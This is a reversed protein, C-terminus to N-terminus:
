TLGIEMELGSGTETGEEVEGTAVDGREQDDEMADLKRLARVHRKEGEDSEAEATVCGNTVGEAGEVAEGAGATCSGLGARRAGPVSRELALDTEGAEALGGWNLM